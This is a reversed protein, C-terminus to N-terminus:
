ARCTRPLTELGVTIRAVEAALNAPREQHEPIPEVRVPRTSCGGEEGRLRPVERYVGQRGVGGFEVGLLRAIGTDLAGHLVDQRVGDGVQMAEGPALEAAELLPWVQDDAAESMCAKANRLM